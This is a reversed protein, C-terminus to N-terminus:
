PRTRPFCRCPADVVGGKTERIKYLYVEETNMGHSKRGLGKVINVSIISCNQLNDDNTCFLISEFRTKFSFVSLRIRTEESGAFCAVCRRREM